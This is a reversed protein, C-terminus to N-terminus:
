RSPAPAWTAGGSPAAHTRSWHRPGVPSLVAVHRLSQVVPDGHETGFAADGASLEGLRDAHMVLGDSVQLAAFVAGAQVQRQADRLDEAHRDYQKEEGPRKQPEALSA